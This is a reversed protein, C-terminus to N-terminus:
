EPSDEIDFTLRSIDSATEGGVSTYYYDGDGGRRFAVWQSDPSFKADIDGSSDLPPSTLPIHEGTAASILVLRRPSLRDIQDATLLYRGDPSWELLLQGGSGPWNALLRGFSKMVGDALRLRVVEFHSGDIGRLFAIEKGDPSWVPRTELADEQTLRSAVSGRDADKVYIHRKGDPAQSATYALRKGDPSWIPSSVTGPLSDISSLQRTKALHEKGVWAPAFRILAIALMTAAIVLWNIYSPRRRADAPSHNPGAEVPVFRQEAPIARVDPPKLSSPEEKTAQQRRAILPIYGGKPVDIRITDDVGVTRYYMALKERVRRAHVRVISDTKPDYDAPRHFVEVGITTEKLELIEGSQAHEVCFRLFQASRASAAFQPSQLIRRLQSDVEPDSPM